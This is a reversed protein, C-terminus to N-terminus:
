IKGGCCCPASSHAGVAYLIIKLRSEHLAVKVDTSLQDTVEIIAKSWKELHKDIRNINRNM